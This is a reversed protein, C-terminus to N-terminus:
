EHKQSYRIRPDIWGYLLDTILNALTISFAVLLLIATLVPYDRKSISDFLLRGLGPWGFVTEILASGAVVFGFNYGVVTIIPIAANRLVHKFLVRGESAGKARVNIIFDANLVELFATRTIRAILALYRLSLATAPLILHTLIDTWSTTALRLNTMGQAPLWGLVVAFCLILLQGLWFEPISYGFLALGQLLGNLIRSRSWAAWMGLLVGLGTALGLASITLLLTPGLRQWILDVVPLRNALSYGLNGHLLSDVYLWLREWLSKDLGFETRVQQIYEPSAPYDGILITVPDGPVVEILIFNVIVVGLLLPLAQLCRRVVYSLM